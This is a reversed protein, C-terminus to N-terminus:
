LNEIQPTIWKREFMTQTWFFTGKCMALDAERKKERDKRLICNGQLDRGYGGLTKQKSSVVMFMAWLILHIFFSFNWSLQIQNSTWCRGTKEYGLEETQKIINYFLIRDEQRCSVSSSLSCYYAHFISLHRSTVKNINISM